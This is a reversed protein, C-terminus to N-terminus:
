VALTHAHHDAFRNVFYAAFADLVDTDRSNFNLPLFDPGYIPILHAACIVSDLAIVGWEHLGGPTFDPTIIWLGTDRDPSDGHALFWKVM